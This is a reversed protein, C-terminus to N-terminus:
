VTTICTAEELFLLHDEKIGLKITKALAKMFPPAPQHILKTTTKIIWEKNRNKKTRKKNERTKNTEM